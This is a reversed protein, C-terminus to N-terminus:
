LPHAIGALQELLVLRDFAVRVEGIRGNVIHFIDIGPVSVFRNSVDVGLFTFRHTGTWTFRIAARDDQTFLDNITFNVDPFAKFFASFFRQVGDYGTAQGGPVIAPDYFLIGPDFVREIATLDHQNILQDFYGRAVDETTKTTPTSTDM